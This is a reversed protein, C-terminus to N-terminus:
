CRGDKPKIFEMEGLPKSQRSGPRNAEDLRALTQILIVRCVGIDRNMKFMALYVVLGSVMLQRDGLVGQIARVDCGSIQKRGNGRNKDDAHPLKRCLHVQNSRM